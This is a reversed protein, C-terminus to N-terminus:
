KFDALSGCDEELNVIGCISVSVIYNRDAQLSYLTFCYYDSWASCPTPKIRKQIEKSSGKEHLHYSIVFSELSGYTQEPASWRLGIM